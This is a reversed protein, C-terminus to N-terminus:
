GARLLLSNSIHCRYLFTPTRIAPEWTLIQHLLVREGPFRTSAANAAESETEFVGAVGGGHILVWRGESGEAILRGAERLYASWDPDSDTPLETYHIAAPAPMPATRVSPENALREREAEMVREMLERIEADNM